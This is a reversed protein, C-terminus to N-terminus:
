AARWWANSSSELQSVAWAGSGPVSSSGPLPTRSLFDHHSGAPWDQRAAPRWLASTVTRAAVALFGGPAVRAALGAIVPESAPLYMLVGLLLVTDYIEGFATAALDMVSGDRLTVRDRVDAREANLTAEFIARM